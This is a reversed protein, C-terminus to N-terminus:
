KKLVILYECRKALGETSARHAGRLPDRRSRTVLISNARVGLVRDSNPVLQVKGRGEPQLLLYYTILLSYYTFGSTQDLAEENM